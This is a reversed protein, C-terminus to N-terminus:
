YRNSGDSFTLEDIDLDGSSFDRKYKINQFGDVDWYFCGCAQIAFGYKQSLKELEDIFKLYNQELKEEQKATLEDSM